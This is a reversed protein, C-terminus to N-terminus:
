FPCGTELPQPAPKPISPQRWHNPM